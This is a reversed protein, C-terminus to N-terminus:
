IEAMIAALILELSPNIPFGTYTRSSGTVTIALSSCSTVSASLRPFVCYANLM